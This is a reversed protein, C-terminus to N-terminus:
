NATAAMEQLFIPQKEKAYVVFSRGAESESIWVKFAEKTEKQNLAPLNKDANNKVFEGMSSRILAINERHIITGLNSRSASLIYDLNKATLAPNIKQLKPLFAIRWDSVANQPTVGGANEKVINGYENKILISKILKPAYFGTKGQEFRAKELKYFQLGESFKKIESKVANKENQDPNYAKISKADLKGIDSGALANNVLHIYCAELSDSKKTNRVACNQAFYEECAKEFDSLFIYIGEVQQPVPQIYEEKDGEKKNKYSHMSQKPTTMVFNNPLHMSQELTTPESRYVKNQPQTTNKLNKKALEVAGLWINTAKKLSTKGISPQTIILGLNFLKSCVQGVYIASVSQTDALEKNTLACWNQLLSLGSITNMICYEVHTLGFFIRVEHLITDYKHIM